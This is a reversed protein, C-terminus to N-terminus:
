PEACAASRGNETIVSSKGDAASFVVAGDTDTRFIEAGATHLRQLVANRPLMSRDEGSSIVAYRPQVAELLAASTSTDSGHHAVKLVDARLAAGGELLDREAQAEMDGCFLMSFGDYQLRFVTSDNNSEAYDQLPGLVEFTMAGYAYREGVAARRLPVAQPLATMGSISEGVPSEVVADAPVTQLVAPLGGCHDDDPHSIWVADLRDIGRAALYRLVDEAAEATGCDVLVNADPSELLIADAKGVDIVHVHLADEPLSATFHALGAARMLAAWMAKGPPTYGFVLVAAAAAICAVRLRKKRNSRKDEPRSM